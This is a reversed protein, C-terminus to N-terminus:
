TTGEKRTARALVERAERIHGCYIAMGPETEAADTLFRLAEVLEDHSNVCRVIHHANAEARRDDDTLHDTPWDVVTDHTSPLTVLAVTELASDGVIREHDNHWPIPTSRPCRARRRRRRRPRQSVPPMGDTERATEAASLDLADDRNTTECM